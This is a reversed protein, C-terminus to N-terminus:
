IRRAKISDKKALNSIDSGSVFSKGEGTIIIVKANTDKNLAQMASGLELITEDDVANLVNPRNIKVMAIGDKIEVILYKYEM